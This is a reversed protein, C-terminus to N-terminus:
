SPTPKVWESLSLVMLTARPIAVDMEALRTVMQPLVYGVWVGLVAVIASSWSVLSLHHGQPYARAPENKWELFAALQKLCLRCFV